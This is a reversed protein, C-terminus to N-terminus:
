TSHHSEIIKNAARHGSDIASHVTMGPLKGSIGEGAFYISNQIPAELIQAADKSIGVRPYSYGGQIFKEAKWDFRSGDIFNSSAPHPCVNTGFIDDLQSVFEKICQTESLLTIRDAFIDTAFGTILYDNNSVYNNDPHMWFEPVLSESCVVGQCKPPWFISRFRVFIKM